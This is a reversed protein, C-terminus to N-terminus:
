RPTEVGGSHLAPLCQARQPKLLIFSTKLGSLLFPALSPSGLESGGKPFQPPVMCSSPCSPAALLDPAKIGM